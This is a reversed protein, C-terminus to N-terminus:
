RTPLKGIEKLRAIWEEPTVFTHRRGGDYQNLLEAYHSLLWAMEKLAAFLEDASCVPAASRSARRQTKTRSM